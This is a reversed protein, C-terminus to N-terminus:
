LGIHDNYQRLSLITMMITEAPKKIFLADNSCQVDLNCHYVCCVDGEQSVTCINKDFYAVKTCAYMSINMCVYMCVYM